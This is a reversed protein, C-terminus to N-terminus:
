DVRWGADYAAQASDHVESPLKLFEAETPPLQFMNALYVTVSESPKDPSALPDYLLGCEDEQGPKRRV